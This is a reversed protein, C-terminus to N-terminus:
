PRATRLGTHPSQSVLIPAHRRSYNLLPNCFRPVGFGTALVTYNGPASSPLLFTAAFSGFPGDVGSAVIPGSPPNFTIIVPNGGVGSRNGTDVTVTVSTGYQGSTPNLSISPCIIQMYPSLALGSRASAAQATSAMPLVALIFLSFVVILLRSLIHLRKMMNMSLEKRVARATCKSVNPLSCIERIPHFTEVEPRTFKSSCTYHKPLLLVDSFRAINASLHCFTLESYRMMEPYSGGNKIEEPLM